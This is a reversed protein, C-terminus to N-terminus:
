RKEEARCGNRLGIYDVLWRGLLNDSGAAALWEGVERQEEVSYTKIPPCKVAGAKGGVEACSVLLLSGILILWLKGRRWNQERRM